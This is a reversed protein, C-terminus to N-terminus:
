NTRLRIMSDRGRVLEGTALAEDLSEKIEERAEEKHWEELKEQLERIALYEAALATARERDRIPGLAVLKALAHAPLM